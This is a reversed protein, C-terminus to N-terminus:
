AAPSRTSSASTTSSRSSSSRRRCRSPSAARVLGDSRDIAYTSVVALIAFAFAVAGIASDPVHGSAKGLALLVLSLESVQCLNIAPLLSVRHGLRMAHLVPFVTALRTAVVFLCIVLTWLALSWTPMPITMGLGVFFLTVFFDRLSTVKAIVDLTYPFTSVMVGAVLAGMEPSLDLWRAFGALAFCWALAGVQVLEPQRAVFRFIPPLVFRSGVYGVGVLLAV